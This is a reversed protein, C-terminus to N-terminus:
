AYKSLDPEFFNLGKLGKGDLKRKIVYIGNCEEVIADTYNSIQELGKSSEKINNSDSMTHGEELRMDISDIAEKYSSCFKSMNSRHVEDFADKLNFGSNNAFSIVEYIIGTLGSEIVTRDGTEVGRQYQEFRDTIAKIGKLAQHKPLIRSEGVHENYIDTTKCELGYSALAGYTVYLIDCLGDVMGVKNDNNVSDIFENKGFIEEHILRTRFDAQKTSLFTFETNVEQNAVKMFEIVQQMQQAPISM